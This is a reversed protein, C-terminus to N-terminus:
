ERGDYEVEVWASDAAASRAIAACVAANRWGDRFDPYAPERSPKGAEIDRYVAEFLSAFTDSFGGSFAHVGSAVGGGKRATGLRYPDESNWFVSGDSGCIEIELRNIRGHSVESLVVNGLAGNSFRLSVLAADESEVRVPRSGERAEAYMVGGALHRDRAFRGFSASVARVELGTLHRALDVWHSGIETVAWMPGALEPRYRWGWADPLAHFEQLYSGHVLRLDGVAGGAIKARAEGCAAHFRANFGVAAVLGKGEALRALEGAQRPDITLPKECLVHKGARLAERVFPYHLEPPTCVHVCGVDGSLALGIEVGSREAGWDRAFAAAREADAGVVASLTHGLGKLARAHMRAAFGNGVIACRM